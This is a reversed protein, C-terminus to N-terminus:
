KYPTFVIDSAELLLFHNDINIKSSAEWSIADEYLDMEITDPAQFPSNNISVRTLYTTTPTISM